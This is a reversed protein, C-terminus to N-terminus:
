GQVITIHFKAGSALKVVMGANSTLYGGESYSQVHEVAPYDSFLNNLMEDTDQDGNVGEECAQFFQELFDQMEKEASNPM